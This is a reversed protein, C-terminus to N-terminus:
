EIFGTTIYLPDDDIWININIGKEKCVKEKARYDCYIIPIGVSKFYHEDEVPTDEGRSTVLFVKHNHDFFIEIAETWMLPDATFTNDYDIMINM